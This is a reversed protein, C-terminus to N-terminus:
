RSTKNKDSSRPLRDEARLMHRLLSPEWADISLKAREERTLCRIATDDEPQAAGAVAARRGSGKASRGRSM